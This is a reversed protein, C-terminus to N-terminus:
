VEGSGALCGVFLGEERDEGGGMREEKGAGGSEVGGDV